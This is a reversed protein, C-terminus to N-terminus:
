GTLHFFVNAVSFYLVVGTADMITAVMPGSASAPDLGFRRLVFPLMSGILSGVLVVATVSISVTLAFDTFDQLVDFHLWHGILVRATGISALIAGLALGMAIERRAVRWWDRLRVEGLTMARIVLTSAQSGSNGGCSIVLPLFAILGAVKGFDAEFGSLVRVTILGCVFLIILWVVRKRLLLGFAIRLYPEDLVEMGGYKQIDETAEEEVVDVIDDVTILGQMRGQEDVVPLAIVDQEAFIRAVAEQDMEEPVTIIDTEMVDRVFRDGPAAFLERFTAIGLLRQQADLVYVYYITEIQLASSAQRRLYSIAEDATMDPRVRAFRSSMLGGAEDEEYAMLASVEKRTASDLVALLANRDEDEETEQIVDAADDPALLRLWLRREATTMLLLLDAQDRPALDFFFEEGDEADLRRFEAVRADNAIQWWAERLGVPDNIRIEQM